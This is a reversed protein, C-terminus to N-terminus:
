TASKEAPSLAPLGISALLHAALDPVVAAMPHRLAADRTAKLWEATAALAGCGRLLTIADEVMARTTEAPKCALVQQLAAVEAPSGHEFAWLIPFSIKGGVLDGGSAQRGKNGVIDLLDDQVQFLLGLLEGYEAASQVTPTRAYAAHAGALFCAAFLAGTKRRAMEMWTEVSPTLREPHGKPLHLQLDMAQGEILSVMTDCVMPLVRPGAPARTIREMARFVLADGANIAQAVGWRHWVTARGRRHTDGDQVDDHILTANHLLELGAGFDLASEPRGGLNDCVWVPLLARLRKGGTALHYANMEGILGSAGGSELIRRELEGIWRRHVEELTTAVREAGM